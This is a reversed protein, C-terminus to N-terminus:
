LIAFLGFFTIAPYFDTISTMQFEPCCNM